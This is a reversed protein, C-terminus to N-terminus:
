NEKEVPQVMTNLSREVVSNQRWVDCVVGAVYFLEYTAFGGALVDVVALNIVLYTSRKRLNRNKVFVIITIINLTVIAVSMALGVALWTICEPFSFMKFARKKTNATPHLYEHIKNALLQRQQIKKNFSLDVSTM